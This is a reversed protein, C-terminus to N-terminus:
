TSSPFSSSVVASLWLNSIAFGSHSNRLRLQRFSPTCIPLNTLIFHKNIYNIGKNWKNTGSSSFPKHHSPSWIVLNFCNSGISQCLISLRHKIPTQQLTTINNSKWISTILAQMLPFRSLTDYLNRIRRSLSFTRHHDMLLCSHSLM